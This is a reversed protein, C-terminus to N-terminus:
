IKRGRYNQTYIEMKRSVLCSSPGSRWVALEWSELDVGWKNEAM